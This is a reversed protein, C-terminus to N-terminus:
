AAIAQSSAGYRAAWTWGRSLIFFLFFSPLGSAFTRGSSRRFLSPAAAGRRLAVPRRAALPPPM